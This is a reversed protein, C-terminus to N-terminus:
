FFRPKNNKLDHWEARAANLKKTMEDREAGKTGASEALIKVYLACAKEKSSSWQKLIKDREYRRNARKLMKSKGERNLSDWISLEDVNLVRIDNEQLAPDLDEHIKNTQYNTM